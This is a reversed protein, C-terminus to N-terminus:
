GPVGGRRDDSRGHVGSPRVPRTASHRQRFSPKAPGQHTWRLCTAMLSVAGFLPVRHHACAAFVPDWAGEDLRRIESGDLPWGLLARLGVQGQARRDKAAGVFHDIDGEDPSVHPVYTFREPMAAAAAPAFSEDAPFIVVRDIGVADLYAAVVETLVRDQIDKSAGTWDAWPAPEHMQADTIRM